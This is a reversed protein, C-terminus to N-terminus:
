PAKKSTHFRSSFMCPSFDDPNEFYNDIEISIAQSGLSFDKRWRRAYIGGSSCTLWGNNYYTSYFFGFRLSRSGVYSNTLVYNKSGLSWVASPGHQDISGDMLTVNDYCAKGALVATVLGVLGLIRTKTKM